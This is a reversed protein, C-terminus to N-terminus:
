IVRLLKFIGYSVLIYIGFCFMGLFPRQKERGMRFQVTLWLFMGVFIWVCFLGAVFWNNM